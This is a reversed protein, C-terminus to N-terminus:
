CTLAANVIRGLADVVVAGEGSTGFSLWRAVADLVGAADVVGVDDFVGGRM